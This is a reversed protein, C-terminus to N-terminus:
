IWKLGDKSIVFGIYLLEFMMFTCKKLDILMKEQQLREQVYRVHRFHEEKTWSFIFIGDLYAIVFKDIFEKLVENMLWMFTIPANKLGFPMVLWEYLGENIKFATMWEDGEWIRIQHYSRKLDIKSFYAAGSLFDMMDDM